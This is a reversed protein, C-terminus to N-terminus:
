YSGMTVKAQGQAEPAARLYRAPVQCNWSSAPGHQGSEIVIVTVIVTVIIIAIIIFVVVVVVVCFCCAVVCLLCM